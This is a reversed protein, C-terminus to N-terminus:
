LTHLSRWTTNFWGAFSRWGAEMTHMLNINHLQLYLEAAIMAVMLLFAVGLTVTFRVGHKLLFKRTWVFLRPPPLVGPGRHKGTYKASKRPPDPVETFDPM